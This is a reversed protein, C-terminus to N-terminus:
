TKTATKNMLTMRPSSGLIWTIYINRAARACVNSEANQERHPANCMFVVSLGMKQRIQEIQVGIKM